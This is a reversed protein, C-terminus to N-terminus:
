HCHKYMICWQPSSPSLHQMEFMESVWAISQWSIGNNEIHQIAKQVLVDPLDEINNGNINNFATIYDM